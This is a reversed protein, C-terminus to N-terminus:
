GAIEFNNKIINRSLLEPAKQLAENVDKIEEPLIKSSDISHFGLDELGNQLKMTAKRGPEDKDLVLAFLIDSSLQLAQLHSLFRGIYATSGIALAQPYGAEIISMADIEGETVYVIGHIIPLIQWNFQHNSGAKMKTFQRATEPIMNTPRTDRALYSAPGTPIILRPTPYAKKEGKRVEERISPTIWDKIFGCGFLDQTEHSIGRSLLYSYDPHKQAESIDSQIIEPPVSPIFVHADEKPTIKKVSEHVTKHSSHELHIDYIDLAKFFAQRKDLNYTKGIIDIVNANSFCLNAFCTFRTKDPSYRNTIGSGHVGSGSQCCPCIYSKKDGALQLYLEPHYVIYDRAEDYSMTQM